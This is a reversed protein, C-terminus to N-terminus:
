PHEARPVSPAAVPPHLGRRIFARFEVGFNKNEVYGAGSPQWHTQKQRADPDGMFLEFSRRAAWAHLSDTQKRDFRAVALSPNLDVVMGRKVSATKLGSRVLAEGGYVRFTNEATGNQAIGLRYLGPRTLETTTDTVKVQIRNGEPLQVIEILADGRQLTIRTDALQTDDMRVQANESLRLVVGPALLIEARGRSTSLTEGNEMQPFRAPKLIVRKGDVFAPGQLYTILGARASVVKQAVLQTSLVCLLM